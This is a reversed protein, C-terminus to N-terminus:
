PTVREVLLTKYDRLWFKVPAGHVLALICARYDRGDAYSVLGGGSTHFSAVEVRVVEETRTGDPWEVNVREGDVLEKGDLFDASKEQYCSRAEVPKM